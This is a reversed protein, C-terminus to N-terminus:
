DGEVPYVEWFVLNFCDMLEIWQERTMDECPQHSNVGGNVNLLSWWEDFSIYFYKKFLEEFIKSDIRFNLIEDGSEAHLWIDGTKIIDQFEKLNLDLAEKNAKNECLFVKKPYGVNEENRIFVDTNFHTHYDMYMLVYYITM